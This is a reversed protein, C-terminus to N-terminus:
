IIKFEEHVKPDKLDINAKEAMERMKKTPKEFDMNMVRILHEKAFKMEQISKLYLRSEEVQNFKKSMKYETISKAITENLQDIEPIKELEDRIHFSFEKVKKQVLKDVEHDIKLMEVEIERDEVTKFTNEQKPYKKELYEQTSM